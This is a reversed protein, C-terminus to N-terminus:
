GRGEGNEDSGREDSEGEEEDVAPDEATREAASPKEGAPTPYTIRGHYVGRLSKVLSAEILHVEKLTLECEDLQGDMLRRSVMAHVQNEIRGPTPESM